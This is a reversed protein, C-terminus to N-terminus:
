FGPDNGFGPSPGRTQKPKKQPASPNGSALITGSIVYLKNGPHMVSTQDVPAGAYQERSQPSRAVGGSNMRAAYGRVGSEVPQIGTNGIAARTADNVGRGAEAAAKGYRVAKQAFTQQQPGVPGRYQNPNMGQRPNQPGAPFAYQKVAAPRAHHPNNQYYHEVEEEDTADAPAAFSARRPHGLAGTQEAYAVEEERTPTRYPSRSMIPLLQASSISYNQAPPIPIVLISEQLLHTHIGLFCFPIPLFAGFAPLFHFRYGAKVYLNSL